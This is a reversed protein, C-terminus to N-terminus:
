DEFTLRKRDAASVERFGAPEMSYGARGQSLSRVATAYGFMQNLAVQGRIARLHGRLDDGEIVAGRRILDSSVPGVFEVPTTVEFQMVPELIMIGARECAARFAEGAAAQFATETSLGEVMRGGQLTIEVDIVPFGLDLGGVAAFRAGEEIAAVFVPAVDVESANNTFQIGSGPAGAKVAIRVTATQEVNAILRQWTFEASGEGRLTQRHSVRPKGVNADIRYERLLRHKLVELHLEGMGAILTQGTEADVSVRFTPDERALRGLVEELRDKDATSRPEIAMSIVPEPFSISELAIPHDRECLTDGTATQKLGVIAVIHGAGVEEVSQRENAHMRLLRLSREHRGLRPNYLGKGQKIKGSYVRVFTLDGHTDSLIKFALACLPESDKPEFSVERTPDDPLHGRVSGRDLPSPLYRVIADLLLQVGANRLATGALVPYIKRALVGHRLAAHIEEVSPEVEDLVREMVTDDCDALGELLDARHIELEDRLDEPVPARTVTAGQDGGFTVFEQTVLDIVGRFSDSAGVPVTVPVIVADLRERISRCTSEFDAGGRDMKNVFCLRPVDYRDAQRWVTESQAEVGSVGDFVIVAGDLVRLSREVEATFDVHGPTDILNLQHDLWQITTAAATITIGREQEEALYDMTASGDHVEGMAHEKGTYFLIRETTTTKGADIHACIGFNRVKALSFPKKKQPM